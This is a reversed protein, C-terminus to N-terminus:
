TLRLMETRMQCTQTDFTVTATIFNGLLADETQTYSNGTYDYMVAAEAPVYSALQFAIAILLLMLEIATKRM